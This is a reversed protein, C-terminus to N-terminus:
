KMFDEAASEILSLSEEHPLASARLLDYSMQYQAFLAPDDILQGIHPGEVYALPPAEGFTMLTVFGEMLAHAGVAYPLIQVLARREKVTRAIHTLQEGMAARGGVPRRLINEDLVSWYLPATTGEAPKLIDARALRNAVRNKIEEEPMLPSHAGFVARAYGETQLLGPVLLPAWDCITLALPEHEAADSFFEAFPQQKILEKWMREFFGDTQLAADFRQAHDQKPRRIGQEFLGIYGASCFVLLGLDAQTMGAVERRRKLEAGFFKWGGRFQAFQSRRIAKGM